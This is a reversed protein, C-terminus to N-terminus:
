RCRPSHRIQDGGRRGGSHGRSGIQSGHAGALTSVHAPAYGGLRLSGHWGCRCQYQLLLSQQRFPGSLQLRLEFTGLNNAIAIAEGHVEAEANNRADGPPEEAAMQELVELDNIRRELEEFPGIKGKLDAVEAVMKQASERNDWFDPASM